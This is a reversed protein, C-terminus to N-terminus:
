KNSAVRPGCHGAYGPILLLCRMLEKGEDWMFTGVQCTYCEANLLLPLFLTENASNIILDSQM